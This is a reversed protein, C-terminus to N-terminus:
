FSGSKIRKFQNCFIMVSCQEDETIGLNTVTITVDEGIEIITIVTIRITIVKVIIIRTLHHDETNNEGKVYGFRM